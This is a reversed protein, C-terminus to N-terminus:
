IRFVNETRYFVSTQSAHHALPAPGVFDIRKFGANALFDLGPQYQERDSNDFIIVGRATLAPLCNQACENRWRGDIIIVDFQHTYNSIVAVYDEKSEQLQVAANDFPELMDTAKAHWQADNECSTIQKVRKALWITSFGSGYEFIEMEHNMRKDLFSIVPYALWPLPAGERDVPGGASWSRIWGVERLYEHQLSYLELVFRLPTARLWKKILMHKETNRLRLSLRYKGCKVKERRNFWNLDM